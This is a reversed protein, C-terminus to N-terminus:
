KYYSFDKTKDPLSKQPLKTGVTITKKTIPQYTEEIFEISLDSNVLTQLLKNREQETLNLRSLISEIQKTRTESEIYETEALSIENKTIIDENAKTLSIIKNNAEELAQKTKIHEKLSVTQVREKKKFLRQFFFSIRQNPM